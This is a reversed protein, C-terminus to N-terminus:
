ESTSIEPEYSMIDACLFLLPENIDALNYHLCDQSGAVKMLTKQTFLLQNSPPWVTRTGILSPLEKLLWICEYLLQSNQGVGLHSALM